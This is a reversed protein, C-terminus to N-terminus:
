ITGDRVHEKLSHMLRVLEKQVAAPSRGVIAAIESSSLGAAFRLALLEQKEAPLQGVVIRLRNLAERQLSVSEPEVPSIPQLSHPVHDWPLSRRRRRFTDTAV